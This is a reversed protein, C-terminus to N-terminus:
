AAASPRASVREYWRRVAVHQEPIPMAFARMAFDVAVLATIDAATYFEGAVFPVSSLRAEIDDYFNAVRRKSREVLEPIQEYGHPGSVARGKLGAAANRVGEMVAAFGETEARREWMAVIAKEQATTGFLPTQAFADDLYRMIVPTEGIATGDDLVLTPVVVRPNISRYADSFQERTGLVVPILPVDLGKEALLIRVRRSNPSGNAHYLKM